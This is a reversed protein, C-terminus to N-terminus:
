QRERLRVDSLRKTTDHRRLFSRILSAYREPDVAASDAHGAGWNTVELEVLGAPGSQYVARSHEVNMAPDELAHILLVPTRTLKISEVPAIEDAVLGTRVELIALVLPTLM